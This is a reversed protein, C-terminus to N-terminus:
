EERARKRKRGAPTRYEIMRAVIEGRVFVGNERVQIPKVEIELAPQRRYPGVDYFQIELKYNDIDVIIYEINEHDRRTTFELNRVSLKTGKPAFRSKLMKEPSGAVTGDYEGLKVEVTEDYVLWGVRGDAGRPEDLTWKSEDYDPYKFVDLPISFRQMEPFLFQFSPSLHLVQNEDIYTEETLREFIQRGRLNYFNIKDILEVPLTKLTQDL